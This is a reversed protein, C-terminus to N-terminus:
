FMLEINFAMVVSVTLLRQLLLTMNGFERQSYSYSTSQVYPFHLVAEVSLTSCVYGIDELFGSCRHVCSDKFRGHGKYNHTLKNTKKKVISSLAFHKHSPPVAYM